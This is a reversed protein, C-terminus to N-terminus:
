WRRGRRPTSADNCHPGRPSDNRRKTDPAPRGSDHTQHAYAIKRLESGERKARDIAASVDDSDRDKRSFLGM